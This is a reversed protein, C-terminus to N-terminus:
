QRSRGRLVSTALSVIGIGSVPHCRVWCNAAGRSRYLDSRTASRKYPEEPFNMLALKVEATDGPEMADPGGVFARPLSECAWQTCNRISTAAGIQSKKPPYRLTWCLRTRVSATHGDAVDTLSISEM